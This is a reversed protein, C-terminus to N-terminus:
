TNNLNFVKKYNFPQCCISVKAAKLLSKERKRAPKIAQLHCGIESVIEANERFVKHIMYEQKSIIKPEIQKICDQNHLIYYFTLAQWDGQYAYDFTYYKPQSFYIFTRYIIPRVHTPDAWADESYGYPCTIWLSCDPKAIRYLEDFLPLLNSIHEITHEMRIHSCSNDDIPLRKIDCLNLDSVYDLGLSPRLDLTKWDKDRSTGAGLNLKM